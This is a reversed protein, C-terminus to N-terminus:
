YGEQTFIEYQATAGDGATIGEYYFDIYDIVFGDNTIDDMVSSTRSELDVYFNRYSDQTYYNSGGTNSPVDVNVEYREMEGNKFYVDARINAETEQGAGLGVQFYSPAGGNFNVTKWFQFGSTSEPVSIEDDYRHLSPSPVSVNGTSGNVSQVPAADAAETATTYSESHQSNGHPDDSFSSPSRGGLQESNDSQQALDVKGDGDTDIDNNKVLTANDAQDASDVKGDGNSDIDNDKVLTANDAQDAADVKGDGNTDIDNDKYLNASDAEDVVGDGNSDVEELYDILQGIKHFETYIFYDFESEDVPDGNQYDISTEPEEGTSGHSYNPKNPITM